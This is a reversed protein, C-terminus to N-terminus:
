ANADFAIIADVVAVIFHMMQLKHDLLSEGDNVAAVRENTTGAFIAGSIKKGVSKLVGSEGKQEVHHISHPFVQKLFVVKKEASMIKKGNKDLIDPLNLVNEIALVFANMREGTKSLKKSERGVKSALIASFSKTQMSPIRENMQEVISPLIVLTEGMLQEQGKDLFGSFLDSIARSGTAEEHDAIAGARAAAGLLLNLANVQFDVICTSVSLMAQSQLAELRSSEAAVFRFFDDPCSVKQDSLFQRQAEIFYTQIGEDEADNIGATIDALERSSRVLSESEETIGSISAMNRLVGSIEKSLATLGLSEPFVGIDQSLSLFADQIVPLDSITMSAVDVLLINELFNQLTVGVTGARDAAVEGECSFKVLDVIARCLNEFSPSAVSGGPRDISAKQHIEPQAVERFVPVSSDKPLAARAAKIANSANVCTDGSQTKSLGANVGQSLGILKAQMEEIPNSIRRSRNAVKKFSM